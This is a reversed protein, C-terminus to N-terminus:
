YQIPMYCDKEYLGDNVFERVRYLDTNADYVRAM